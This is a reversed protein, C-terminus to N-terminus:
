WLIEVTGKVTLERISLVAAHRHANLVMGAHAAGMGVMGVFTQGRGRSGVCAGTRAALM